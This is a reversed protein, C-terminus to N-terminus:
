QASNMKVKGGHSWCYGGVKPGKTCGERKCLRKGGHSWCLGNKRSANPCADTKCRKGGGHSICLGLSVAHKNCEPMSCRLGGGHAICFGGAKARKICDNMGCLKGSSVRKRPTLDGILSSGCSSATSASSNSISRHLPSIALDALAECAVHGDMMRNRHGFESSYVLKENSRYFQSLSVPTTSMLEARKIISQISPLRAKKDKPSISAASNNEGNLLEHLRLQRPSSVSNIENYDRFTKAQPTILSPLCSRRDSISTDHQNSRETLWHPREISAFPPLMTNIPKSHKHRILRNSSHNM